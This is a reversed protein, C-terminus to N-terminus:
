RYGINVCLMSTCVRVKAMDMAPLSYNQGGRTNHKWEFNLAKWNWDTSTVKSWQCHENLCKHTNMYINSCTVLAKSVIPTPTELQMYAAHKRAACSVFTCISIIAQRSSGFDEWHQTSETFGQSCQQHEGVIGDNNLAANEENARHVEVNDRGQNNIYGRSSSNKKTGTTGRPSVWITCCSITWLHTNVWVTTGSSENSDFSTNM